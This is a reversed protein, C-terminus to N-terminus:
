LSVLIRPNTTILNLTFEGDINTAVGNTTGIEIINAGPITVGQNDMVVGTITRNERVELVEPTRPADKVVHITSNVQKFRLGYRASLDELTEELSSNKASITIPINDLNDNYAFHFGTKSELTKAVNKFPKEKLELSVRNKSIDLTFGIPEYAYQEALSTRPYLILCVLVLLLAAEVKIPVSNRM